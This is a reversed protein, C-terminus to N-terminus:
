DPFYSIRVRFRKDIAHLKDFAAQSIKLLVKENVGTDPLKGLVRVFVEQGNMENKVRIITGVKATRHLALYKRTDGSNEILEALGTEVMEEYNAANTIIEKTVKVDDDTTAVIDNNTLAEKEIDDDKDEPKEEKEDEPLTVAPPEYAAMYATDISYQNEGSQNEGPSHGVIISDGININNGSLRNWMKIETVEQDYQRSLSFLTEGSGVVHWQYAAPDKPVNVQGSQFSASEPNQKPLYLEQGINLQNTKIGNRKRLTSVSIGYLKSISYLTEGTKVIHINEPREEALMTYPVRIIDGIKIENAAIPNNERIQDVSVKYRRSLAFLTEQPDVQHIIYLKGNIRETRLSDVPASLVEANIIFIVLLVILRM